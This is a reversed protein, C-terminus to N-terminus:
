EHNEGPQNKIPEQSEWCVRCGMVFTHIHYIRQDPRQEITYYSKDNLLGADCRPSHQIRIVPSYSKMVADLVTFNHKFLHQMCENLMRLSTQMHQNHRRPLSM